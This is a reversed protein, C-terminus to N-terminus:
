DQQSGSTREKKKEKMADHAACRRSVIWVPILFLAGVLTSIALDIGKDPGSGFIAIAFGGAIGALVLFSLHVALGKPTWIDPLKIIGGM